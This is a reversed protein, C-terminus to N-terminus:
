RIYVSFQYKLLNLIKPDIYKLYLKFYLLM